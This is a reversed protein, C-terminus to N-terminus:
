PEACEFNAADTADGSGKYRAVKPFACVPRRWLTQGATAATKTAILEGPAKGGEVWQELATLPDIGTDAIGPGNTQIGCHDMGPIMFLRAFEQTAAIGGSKKALQDYFEVTLQPTVLPDAWGHYIILKGGGQRFASIDGTITEGSDPDFTAANYMRATYGMRQPDKDFDFDTVRFSPGAAPEFAMFRLFDQAFLPMLPPANGAGTLWRPWHPESGFPVGGPYLRKGSSTLPGGYWKDAVGVEAETLCDVGDAARCQLASPKFDCRRPDSIIGDKLGDRADCADYVADQLLKLKSPAFVQKGDPGTNHM